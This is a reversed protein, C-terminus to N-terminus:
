LLFMRRMAVGSVEMAILFKGVDQNNPSSIIKENSLQRSAELLAGNGCGVGWSGLRLLRWFV